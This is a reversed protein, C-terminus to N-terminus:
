LLITNTYELFMGRLSLEFQPLIDVKINLLGEIKSWNTLNAGNCQDGFEADYKNKCFRMPKNSSLFKAYQKQIKM